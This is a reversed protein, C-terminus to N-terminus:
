DPVDIKLVTRIGPAKAESAWVYGVAGERERVTRIVESSDNKLLPPIGGERFLRHNWHNIYARHSLHLVNSLFAERIEQSEDQDIPRIRVGNAMEKQGLFIEVLETQSLRTLPGDANVIVAIERAELRGSLAFFLGALLLARRFRM